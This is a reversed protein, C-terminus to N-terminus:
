DDWPRKPIPPASSAPPAGGGGTSDGKGGTAIQEIPPRGGWAPMDRTIVRALTNKDGFGERGPEVGIEALFRLGDFDRYDMKYKALTEPSRDSLDLFKASAIIRKLTALKREAFGKQGEKTGIVLLFVFFKRRAFEGDLLTLEMKLMEADGTKTRTLVSDTGDGYQVRIQVTAVTGARILDDYGSFDIAM